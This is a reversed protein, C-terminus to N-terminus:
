KQFTQARRRYVAPTLSYVRRFWRGLHSQDAFCLDSAVDAPSIGQALLKRAHNLRLSILYAHPPQEYVQKFVRNLRFRDIGFREVLDNLAIDYHLNAHLYDRIQSALNPWQTDGISKKRWEAHVTVRELMQDLYAEQVIRPEQQHIAFFASSISAGLLNDHILNESFYLESNDPIHHFLSNLQNHIWDVPLYLMQYTFGEDLPANGDHLEGPELLFSGGILSNHTKKRCKFQQVGQETVGLLYSDHWHPDYAHGKFHARLIEIDTEKDKSLELWNKDDKSVFYGYKSLKKELETSNLELLEEQVLRESNSCGLM